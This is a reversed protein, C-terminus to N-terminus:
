RLSARGAARRRVHHLRRRTSCCRWTTGWRAGSPRCREVERKIPGGVWGDIKFAPYGYTEQCYRAFEAYDEPRTLGGNEDGHYTSAYCPLKMRWGGLLQYIPADYLKGALDWLAVDVAGPPANTRGREARKLDHWIIDRELPDRGLLYRAARDDVGGPAEGKVGTDTEITLISGGGPFRSGPQYVADFGLREERGLDPIEWGYHTVILRTIKISQPM